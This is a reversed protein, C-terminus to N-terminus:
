CLIWGFTPAHQDRFPTLATELGLKIGLSEWGIVGLRTSIETGLLLGML